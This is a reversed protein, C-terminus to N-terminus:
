ARTKTALYIVDHLSLLLAFPRESFYSESCGNTKHMRGVNHGTGEERTKMEMYERQSEIQGQLAISRDM